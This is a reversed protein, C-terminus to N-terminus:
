KRIIFLVKNDVIGFRFYSGLARRCTCKTHRPLQFYRCIMIPWVISPTMQYKALPVRSSSARSMQCTPRKHMELKVKRKRTGQEQHRAAVLVQACTGIITMVIHEHIKM